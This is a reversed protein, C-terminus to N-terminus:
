MRRPTTGHGFRCARVTPTAGDQRLRGLLKAGDTLRGSGRADGSLESPGAAHRPCVRNRRRAPRRRSKERLASQVYSFRYLRLRLSRRASLRQRDVDSARDSYRSRDGREVDGSARAKECQLPGRGLGYTMNHEQTGNMWVGNSTLGQEYDERHLYLANGEFEHRYFGIVRVYEGDFDIPRAILQIMSVDLPENM